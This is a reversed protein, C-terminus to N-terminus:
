DITVQGNILLPLLNDRTKILSKTEERIVIIKDFLPEVLLNFETLTNKDPIFVNLLSLNERTLQKQVSGTLYKDVGFKKLFEYIFYKSLIDSLPHIVMANGTIWSKPSTYYVNGCSGRCSIIVESEEHNYQHYKGILGGGGYVKYSATNDFKKNSITEPQYIDFHNVISEVKWGQPILMKLKESWELKNGSDKYPKNNKDPFNFQSFYYDYIITILQQLNDNIQNNILIKENIYDLFESVKIQTDMDPLYAICEKINNPSTHRIKTQQSGADLQKKVIPSSLLYYAYRKHINDNSIVLGIDGSQIYTDDLPITATNGLLGRVQETLPTIIDGKKLLFEKRVDGTYYLDDKSTNEKWGSDPYTFNGLTLRIYKGSTSYYDGSLSTGRKIDLVEGLKIKQM